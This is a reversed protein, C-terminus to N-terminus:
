NTFPYQWPKSLAYALRFIGLNSYSDIVAVDIGNLACVCPNGGANTDYWYSTAIEGWSAGDFRYVHIISKVTGTAQFKVIDSGNIGCIAGIPVSLPNGSLAWTSGNWAYTRLTATSNDCFAVTSGSLAALFPYTMAALNLGSGVMSWTSGNFTYRRLQANTTDVFAVDTASIAALAPTGVTAIALGSGVLSWNTGDWRYCRLSKNTADVLAIDTANLTCLAAAGVALTFENGDMTFSYGNFSYHRLKGGTSDIFALSTSSMAAIAGGAAGGVPQMFNAISNISGAWQVGGGQSGEFTLGAVKCAGSAGIYFGPKTGDAISGDTAYRDGGRISGGTQVKIYQAFLQNIFAVNAALLTFYNSASGMYRKCGADDNSPYGAQVAWIIDVWADSIMQTTPPVAYQNQWAGSSWMYIGCMASTTSWILCTDNDVLHTPGVGDSPGRGRYRPVLAPVNAGAAAIAALDAAIREQEEATVIGDAYAAVLDAKYTADLAAIQISPAYASDNDIQTFTNFTAIRTILSGAFYLEARLSEAGSMSDSYSLEAIWPAVVANDTAIPAVPVAVSAIDAIGEYIKRTGRFIRWRGAYAAGASDWASFTVTAPPIYTDVGAVVKRYIVPNSCTIKAVGGIEVSAVAASAKRGNAGARLHGKNIDGGVIISGDVLLNGKIHQGSM